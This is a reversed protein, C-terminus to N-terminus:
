GVFLTVCISPSRPGVQSLPPLPLSAIASEARALRGLSDFKAWCHCRFLVVGPSISRLTTSTPGGLVAGTDDADRVLRGQNAIADVHM